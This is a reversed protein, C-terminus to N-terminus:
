QEFERHDEQVADWGEESAPILLRENFEGEALLKGGVTQFSGSGM